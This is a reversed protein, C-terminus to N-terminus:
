RVRELEDRYIFLVLIILALFVYNARSGYYFYNGQWQQVFYVAGGKFHVPYSHVTDAITPSWAQIAYTTAIQALVNASLLAFFIKFAVPAKGRFHWRM